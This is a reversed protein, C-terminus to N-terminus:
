RAEGHAADGGADPAFDRLLERALAEQEPDVMLTLVNFQDSLGAPYLQGFAGGQLYHRVGYADMLAALVSAEAASQLRYVPVM